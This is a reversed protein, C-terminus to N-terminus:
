PGHGGKMGHCDEDHPQLHSKPSIGIATVGPQPLQIALEHPSMVSILPIPHKPVLDPVWIKVISNAMSRGSIAHTDRARQEPGWGLRLRQHQGSEHQVSISGTERAGASQVCIIARRQPISERSQLPRRRRPECKALPSKPLIFIGQILGLTELYKGQELIGVTPSIRVM